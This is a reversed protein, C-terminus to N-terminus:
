DVSLAMLSIKALEVPQEDAQDEANEDDDDRRGAKTRDDVEVHQHRDHLTFQVAIPRPQLRTLDLLEGPGKARGSM